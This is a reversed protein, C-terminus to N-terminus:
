CTASSFNRGSPSMSGGVTGRAAQYARTMHGQLSTLISENRAYGLNSPPGPPESRPLWPSGAAQPQTPLEPGPSHFDRSNYTGQPPPSPGQPGQQMPETAILAPPYYGQPPEQAPPYYGQPPDQNRPPHYGPWSRPPQMFRAGM